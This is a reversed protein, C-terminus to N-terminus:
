HSLCGSAMKPHGDSSAYFSYIRGMFLLSLGRDFPGLLVPWKGPLAWSGTERRAALPLDPDLSFM